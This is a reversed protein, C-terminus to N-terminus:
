LQLEYLLCSLTYIAATDSKLVLSGLSCMSFGNRKAMSVEKPSFDGEPGIFVAIETSGALAEGWTSPLRYEDLPKLGSSKQSPNFIYGRLINKLPMSEKDLSAFIVLNKEKSEALASNFDTIDSIVPLKIRGCQKSSALGIRKWREVRKSFDKIEPVTRETVIPVIRTVGLEVTKEVIFDMKTKKPVAQYLTVNISSYDKPTLKEKIKIIIANRTIDEIYGSFEKGEGNFVDVVDGKKVRIVDQIHHIEAKDKIEVINKDPFISDPPVYFRM